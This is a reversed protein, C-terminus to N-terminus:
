LAHVLTEGGRPGPQVFLCLLGQTWGFRARTPTLTQVIKQPVIKRKDAQLQVELTSNLVVHVVLNVPRRRERLCPSTLKSRLHTLFLSTNQCRSLM